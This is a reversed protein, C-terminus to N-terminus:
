ETHGFIVAHRTASDKVRDDNRIQILEFATALCPDHLHNSEINLIEGPLHRRVEPDMREGNAVLRKRSRYGPLQLSKFDQLFFHVAPLRLRYRRFGRGGRWDLIMRPKVSPHARDDRLEDALGLRIGTRQ